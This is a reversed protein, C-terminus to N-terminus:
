FEIKWRVPSAEGTFSVTLLQGEMKQQLAVAKGDRREASIKRPAARDPVYTWLRYPDGAVSQSSGSLTKAHANWSVAELSYSGTIHRSAGLLQPHGTVPHILLVRTDHPAITLQLHDNFTGLLQENWFDFAVFPTESGLGLKKGFPVDATTDGQTWNTLGAVDYMGLSGNVKLDLIQPYTHVYNEARIHLFTDWEMDTGRSYLDSPLIPLTPMTAKLMGVRQPPVEAMVSALPYTVGSLAIYSLVTRTEALSTGMGTLPDERGHLQEIVVSGRRNQAEAVTMPDGLEIGEGPMLYVALHNLFANAGISSFLPYMGQWNAFLDDGTFYSNVYGIANLPSGSPCEEIFRHPGITARMKAMRERFVDVPDTKADFLKSKDVAPVYKPLSHEGDLKYYDFGWDDLTKFIHQVLAMVQPNSSDLAPTSYDNITKGDPTRLYWEPHEKLAGAYSNPVLWIGARLGKSQIYHTLWQPGHPFKSKDWGEIWSHEGHPGRDYGDDLQVYEFGYPKLNAALWDANRVIDNETVGEYYSTWSSWVMPATKFYSDDLPKYYPLGLTKTFYDRVVRISANSSVPMAVDVVDANQQSRTLRTFPGFDIITDTKRDFLSHFMPGSVQGLGFYMVDSNERPLYSRKQTKTGGYVRQVESTGQWIVPFGEPDMTRAVIRGSPAAAQGTLVGEPATTSFTVFEPEIRVVWTTGSAASQIQLETGGKKEVSWGTVADVKGAKRVSLTAHDLVVGLNDRSIRLTSSGPDTEVLWGDASITNPPAAIAQFCLLAM